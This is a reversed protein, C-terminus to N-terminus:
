GTGKKLNEIHELPQLNSWHCCALQQVPCRLDFTSMAKIHEIDWLGHNKWTMWPKFQSEIHKRLEEITCGILEMTSASKFNGKLAMRIRNRCNKRLKFNVNTQYRNREWNRTREINKRAYEKLHEKNKLWYGEAYEKRKEKNELDYKRQRSRIYDRNKLYYEKRREKITPYRKKDYEKRREKITPYRKKDYEKKQEKTQTM